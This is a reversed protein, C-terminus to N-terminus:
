KKLKAIQNEIHWQICAIDLCEDQTIFGNDRADFLQDLCETRKGVPVKTITFGPSTIDIIM